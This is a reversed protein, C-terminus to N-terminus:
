RRGRRPVPKAAPRALREGSPAAKQLLALTRIVAALAAAHESTGDWVEQIAAVLEDNPLRGGQAASKGQMEAYECAARFVRSPRIANGSLARSIQSQSVGLKEALKAQTIGAQKLQHSALQARARLDPTSM